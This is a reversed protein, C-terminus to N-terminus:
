KSYKLHSLGVRMRLLRLFTAKNSVAVTGPELNLRSCAACCTNAQCCEGVGHDCLPFHTLAVQGSGCQECTTLRHYDGYAQKESVSM